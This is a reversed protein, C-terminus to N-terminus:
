KTTSITNKNVWSDILVDSVVVEGTEKTDYVFGKVMIPVSNIYSRPLTFQIWKVLFRRSFGIIM